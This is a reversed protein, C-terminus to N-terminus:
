GAHHVEMSNRSEVDEYSESGAFRVIKDMYQELAARGSVILLTWPQSRDALM